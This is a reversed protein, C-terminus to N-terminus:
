FCNLSGILGLSLDSKMEYMVPLMRITLPVRRVSVLAHLKARREARSIENARDEGEGEGRSYSLFIDELRLRLFQDPRIDDAVSVWVAEQHSDSDEESWGCAASEEIHAALLDFAVQLLTMRLARPINSNALGTLYRQGFSRYTNM